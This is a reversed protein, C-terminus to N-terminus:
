WVRGALRLQVPSRGGLLSGVSSPTTIKQGSCTRSELQVGIRSPLSATHYYLARQYTSVGWGTLSTAVVRDLPLGRIPPPALRRGPTEYSYSVGPLVLAGLPLAREVVVAREDGDRRDVWGHRRPRRSQTDDVVCPEDRRVLHLIRACPLDRLAAVERHVLSAAGM